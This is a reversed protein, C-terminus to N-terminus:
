KKPAPPVLKRRVIRSSIRNAIHTRWLLQYKHSHTKENSSVLRYLLRMSMSLALLENRTSVNEFEPYNRERSNPFKVFQMLDEDSINCKMGINKLQQPVPYSNATKRFFDDFDSLPLYRHDKLTSSQIMRLFHLYSLGEFVTKGFMKCADRFNQVNNLMNDIELKANQKAKEVMVDLQEGSPANRRKRQCKNCGPETNRCRFCRSSQYFDSKDIQIEFEIKTVKPDCCLIQKYPPDWQRYVYFFTVVSPPHPHHSVTVPDAIFLNSISNVTFVLADVSKEVVQRSGNLLEELFDNLGFM